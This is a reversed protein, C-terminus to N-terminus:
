FIENYNDTFSKGSQATGEDQLVAQFYLAGRGMNGRSISQMEWIPLCMYTKVVAELYQSGILLQHLTCFRPLALSTQKQTIDTIWVEGKSGKFIM